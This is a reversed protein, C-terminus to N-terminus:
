EEDSIVFIGEDIAENIFRATDSVLAAFPARLAHQQLFGPKMVYEARGVEIIAGLEILKKIKRRTTERPIGTAESISYANIGRQPAVGVMTHISRYQERFERNRMAPEIAGLAIAESITALDIDSAYAERRSRDLRQIFNFFLYSFLRLQDPGAAPKV